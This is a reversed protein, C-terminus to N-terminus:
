NAWREMVCAWKEATRAPSLRQRHARNRALEDRVPRLLRLWGDVREYSLEQVAMVDGVVGNDLKRWVIGIGWDGLELSAQTAIGGLTSGLTL